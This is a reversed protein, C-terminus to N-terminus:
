TAVATAELVMVTEALAYMGQASQVPIFVGGEIWGAGVLGQVTRNNMLVLELAGVLDDRKKAAEEFKLDFGAAWIGLRIHWRTRKGAALPQGSTERRSDLTLVLAKGAGLLDFVPEEEVLVPVGHLSDDAELLEKLTTLIGHYNVVAM